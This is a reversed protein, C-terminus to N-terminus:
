GMGDKKFHRIAGIYHEGNTYFIEGKPETVGHFWKIKMKTGNPLKINSM